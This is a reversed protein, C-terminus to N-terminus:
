PSNLVFFLVMLDHATVKQTVISVLGIKKVM